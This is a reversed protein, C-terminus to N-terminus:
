TAVLGLRARHETLVREAAANLTSPITDDRLGRLQDVARLADGGAELSRITAQLGSGVAIAAETIAAKVADDLIKEIVEDSARIAALRAILQRSEAALHTFEKLRATDWSGDERRFPTGDDIAGLRALVRDLVARLEAAEAFLKPLSPSLPTSASTPAVPSAVESTDDLHALAEDRDLHGRLHRSVSRYLPPRLGRAIFDAGVLRAIAKAGLGDALALRHIKVVLDPAVPAAACISLCHASRILGPVRSVSM